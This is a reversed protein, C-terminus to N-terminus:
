YMVIFYILSAENFSLTIWTCALFAQIYMKLSVQESVSANCSLVPYKGHKNNRKLKRYKMRSRPVQLLAMILSIIFM